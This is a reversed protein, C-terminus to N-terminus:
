QQKMCMRVNYCYTMERKVNQVNPEPASSVLFMFRIVFNNLSCTTNIIKDQRFQFLNKNNKKKLNTHKTNMDSDLSHYALRWISQEVPVCFHQFWNKEREPATATSFFARTKEGFIFRFLHLLFTPWERNPWDKEMCDLAWVCCFINMFHLRACCIKSVHSITM